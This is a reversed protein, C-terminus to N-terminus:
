EDRYEEEGEYNELEYVRREFDMITKELLQIRLDLLEVETLESSPTSKAAQRPKHIVSGPSGMSDHTIKSGDSWLTKNQKM